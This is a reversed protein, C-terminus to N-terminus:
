GFLRKLSRDLLMLQWLTRGHAARGSRHDLALQEVAKLDFWGTAGLLPSRALMAAEEALPGRFWADTREAQRSPPRYLIERPLYPELAKKMLWQGQGGRIRLESPLTAAFEVLRYDLLPERAELGVAMSARDTRTLAGSPLGLKIDAYQARDLGDRAPAQRMADAYRQEGRYAGLAKRAGDSYLRLRLEPPTVTPIAAGTHPSQPYLRGIAGILGARDALRRRYRAHGALAEPAGDACLVVALTERAFAFGRYAALASVDAFPEDFAEVLVDILAFDDPPVARARHETHFRGAVLETPDGEGFTVARTRVAAKSAEAMLAVV